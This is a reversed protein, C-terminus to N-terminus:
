YDRRDALQNKLDGFTGSVFTLPPRNIKKIRLLLDLLWIPLSQSVISATDLLRVRGASLREPRSNSFSTNKAFPIELLSDSYELELSDCISRVTAAPNDKLEEYHVSVVDFDRELRRTLKEMRAIGPVAKLTSFQRDRNRTMHRVSELVSHLQRRIVVIKPKEITLKPLIELAREADCKQLWYRADKRRAYEIMVAEFLRVFCLPRPDLTYLENINTGAEHIFETKGWVEIFGIYDDTSRLDFKAQMRHFMNTELIGRARASQVGAIIPHNCLINSLWKTGSRIHGVVLIPKIEAPM